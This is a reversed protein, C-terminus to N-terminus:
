STTAGGCGFNVLKLRYGRPAAFRPVQFAFGNRTNGSESRVVGPQYGSAYSDGLSVYLQKAPAAASAVGPGVLGIVLIGVAALAPLM